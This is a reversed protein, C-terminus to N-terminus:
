FFEIKASPLSVESGHYIYIHIYTSVAGESTGSTLTSNCENPNPALTERRKASTLTSNWENPNPLQIGVKTYITYTPATPAAGGSIESTLASNCKNPYPTLSEERTASTLTSNWDNPNPRQGGGRPYPDPSAVTYM